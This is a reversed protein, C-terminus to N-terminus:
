RRGPRSSLLTDPSGPDPREVPLVSWTGGSTLVGSRSEKDIVRFRIPAELHDYTAEGRRARLEVNLHYSGELLLLRPVDYRVIAEAGRESRGFEAYHSVALSDEAVLLGDSRMMWIVAAFESVADNKIQYGLEIRVPDGTMPNHDEVGRVDQLHVGTIVVDRSGWREVAEGAHRATEVARGVSGRYHATIDAPDGDGVLRGHDLLLARDCYRTVASLEHTVLVVTRGESKYRNFVDFCREQFAADGVALVEDMMLIEAHAQIALSFALRVEMGSSFNKLKHDVFQELEAFGIIEDFRRRLEARSLGLVAGSLFVNERATLEPNFGVGLELFPSVNGEISVRGADPQYIRALIKLLTSKGSGNAGIVGIFEGAPVAFSVDKLAELIRHRSSSRVHTLRHKLTASRDLPIRFRKSLNEVRIADAAL